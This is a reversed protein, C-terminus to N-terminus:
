LKNNIEYRAVQVSNQIHRGHTFCKNCEQFYDIVNSIVVLTRGWEIHEENDSYSKMLKEMSGILFFLDRLVSIMDKLLFNTQMLMITHKYIIERARPYMRWVEPNSTVISPIKITLSEINAAERRVDAMKPPVRRFVDDLSRRVDSIRWCVNDQDWMWTDHEELTCKKNKSQNQHCECYFCQFIFLTAYFRRKDLFVRYAFSIIPSYRHPNLLFIDVM